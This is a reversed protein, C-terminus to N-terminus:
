PSDPNRPLMRSRFIHILHIRADMVNFALISALYIMSGSLIIECLGSFNLQFDLIRIYAAMLIASILIQFGPLFPFKMPFAFRGIAISLGMLVLYACLTGDVAGMYGCRPVLILNAVAAVLVAPGQTLLLLSTRKALHFAHDLYQSTLGNITAIIAVWPMVRSAAARFEPGVFFQAIQGSALVLGACLPLGVGLMVTGNRYTQDRAGSVGERELRNMLLPYSPTIVVMFAMSVMRDVLTYGAMYGGLEAVGLDKTIVFQGLAPILTFLALAAILPLGFRLLASLSGRKARRLSLGRWSPLDALIMLALGGTVGLVAGAGGLHGGRVLALGLILGLVAQGCELLNYRLARFDNRHFVQNMSLLGRALALPVGLLILRSMDSGPITAAVVGASALLLVAAAAFLLYSTSKFSQVQEPGTAQAILRASAVQLWVFFAANTVNMSTLALGYFGYDGPSMIRTYFFTASLSTLAPLILSPAFRLMQRLLMTAFVQRDPTTPSWVLTSRSFAQAAPRFSVQSYFGRGARDLYKLVDHLFTAPARPM